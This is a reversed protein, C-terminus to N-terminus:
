KARQFFIVACVIVLLFVPTLDRYPLSMHWYPFGSWIGCFAWGGMLKLRSSRSIKCAKDQAILRTIMWAQYAGIIAGAPLLLLIGELHALLIPVLVVAWSLIIVGAMKVTPGQTTVNLWQLLSASILGVTLWIWGAMPFIHYLYYERGLFLFVCSTLVLTGSWVGAWFLLPPIRLDNKLRNSNGTQKQKGEQFNCGITNKKTRKKQPQQKRAPSQSQLVATGCEGCYRENGRLATGCKGCFKQTERM